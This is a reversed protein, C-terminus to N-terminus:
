QAATAFISAEVVYRPRDTVPEPLWSVRPKDAGHLRVGAAVYGSLGDLATALDAAVDAVSAKGAGKGGWVDFQFLADEDTGAVRFFTIQPFSAANNVGFMVRVDPLASRLWTRVAGEVDVHVVAEAVM